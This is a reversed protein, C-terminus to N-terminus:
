SADKKGEAVTGRAAADVKKQLEFRSKSTDFARAEIFVDMQQGVYLDGSKVHDPMSYIVQLVRTDIRESNEGTLNRKPVVYPEVRYPMLHYVPESRGRLYAYAKAKADFRDLDQEDVDVRVHLTGTDGLIILPNNINQGAFEGPRIKVQLVRGTALAKATHRELTVAAAEVTARASMVEAEAIAIEKDWSGAKLKSLEAVAKERTAVAVSYAYRDRDYDSQSISGRELLRQARAWASEAESLRAATERVLAEAPPLDEKRPANRFRELQAQTVALKAEAAKLEARAQRDDLRFLPQGPTVIDDVKVLVESVVGPLNTGISINESKAEIVGTASVPSQIPLQDVVPMPPPNRPPTPPPSKRLELVVVVALVIGAASILTLLWRIM